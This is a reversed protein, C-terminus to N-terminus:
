IIDIGREKDRLGQSWMYRNEVVYDEVGMDM